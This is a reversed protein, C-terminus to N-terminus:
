VICSYSTRQSRAPGTSCLSGSTTVHETTTADNIAAAVVIVSDSGPSSVLLDRTESFAHFIIRKAVEHRLELFPIGSEKM